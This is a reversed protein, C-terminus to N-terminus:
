NSGGAAAPPNAAGGRVNDDHIELELQQRQFKEYARERKARARDLEARLSSCPSGQSKAIIEELLGSCSSIKELESNLQLELKGIKADLVRIERLVNREYVITTKLQQAPLLDNKQPPAAAM